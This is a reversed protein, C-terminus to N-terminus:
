LGGIIDGCDLNSYSASGRQQHFVHFTRQRLRNKQRAEAVRHILRTISYRRDHDSSLCFDAAGPHDDQRRPQDSQGRRAQVFSVGDRELRGSLMTLIIRRCPTTSLTIRAGARLKTGILLESRLPTRHRRRRVMDSFSICTRCLNM